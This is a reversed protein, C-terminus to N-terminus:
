VGEKSVHTFVIGVSAALCKLPWTKSLSAAGDTYVHLLGGQVFDCFPLGAMFILAEKCVRRRSIAERWEPKNRPDTLPWSTDCM